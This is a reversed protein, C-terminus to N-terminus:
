GEEKPPRPNWVPSSDNGEPDTLETENGKLDITFISGERAFAITKGDPSWAPEFSSESARTLRKIGNANVDITYIDYTTGNVAGAFAIRKADPSWAPSYIAGSLSTLAHRRTGDPRMLWLERASTGPTRRVYAIWDGDPSWSPQSESAPHESIAHTGTGDSNTVWIDGQDGRAFAVKAGNPSWSPYTDDESTSVLVETGTGDANMVFLDFSGHRNSAFAIQRGDPSWAPDVQFFLNEVSEADGTEDTLRVQRGGDANMAFIAYDGDRTSVMVLDPRPKAGGSCGVLLLLAATVAGAGLAARSM